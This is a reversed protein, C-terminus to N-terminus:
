TILLFLVTPVSKLNVPEKRIDACIRTLYLTNLYILYQWGPILLGGNSKIYISLSTNSKIM